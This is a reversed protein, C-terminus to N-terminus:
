SQGGGHLFDLIRAGVAITDLEGGGIVATTIHQDPVRLIGIVGHDAIRRRLPGREDRPGLVAFQDTPRILVAFNKTRSGTM